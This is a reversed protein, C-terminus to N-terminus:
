KAFVALVTEIGHHLPEALAALTLALGLWALRPPAWRAGSHDELLAEVRAAVHHGGFGSILKPQHEGYAQLLRAVKLITEAVLPRNGTLRAAAEDCTQECALHLDALVQRRAGPLHVASALAVAARWLPDRGAAHQREHALVIELQQPSLADILGTSVYVGQTLLGATLAVPAATELVAAGESSVEKQVLSRLRRILSSAATLRLVQQVGSFVVVALVGGVLMVAALSPAQSSWHRLCLHPHGALGHVTCHDLAPWLLGVLSPMFAMATLGVAGILPAFALALLLSRRRVPHVRSLSPRLVPYLAAVLGSGALLFVVPAVLAIPLFTDFM